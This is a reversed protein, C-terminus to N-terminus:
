SFMEVGTIKIYIEVIFSFLNEGYLANIFMHVQKHISTYGDHNIYLRM